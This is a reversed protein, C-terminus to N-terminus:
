WAKNKEKDARHPNCRLNLLQYLTFLPPVSLHISFVLPEDEWATKFYKEKFLWFPCSVRVSAVVQCHRQSKWVASSLLYSPCDNVFAAHIWNWLLTWYKLDPLLVKFCFAEIFVKYMLVKYIQCFFHKPKQKGVKKKYLILNLLLFLLFLKGIMCYCAMMRSYMGIITQVRMIYFVFSMITLIDRQRKLLCSFKELSLLYSPSSINYKIHLHTQRKTQKGSFWIRSM